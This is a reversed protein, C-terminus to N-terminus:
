LAHRTVFEFQARDFVVTGVGLGFVVVRSKWSMVRGYNGFDQKVM